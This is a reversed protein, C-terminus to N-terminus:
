IEGRRTEPMGSAAEIEAKRGGVAAIFAEAIKAATEDLSDALDAELNRRTQGLGALVKDDPQGAFFLALDAAADRLRGILREGGAKKLQTM